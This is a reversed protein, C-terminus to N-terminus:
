SEICVRHCDITALPRREVVDISSRPDIEAGSPSHCAESVAMGLDDAVPMAHGVTALREGTMGGEAILESASMDGLQRIRIRRAIREPSAEVLGDISEEGVEFPIQEPHNRGGGIHGRDEDFGHLTIATVEHWRAIEKRSQAIEAIPMIDIWHHTIDLDTESPGAPEEAVFMGPDLRIKHDKALRQTATKRKTREAADAGHPLDATEPQNLSDLQHGIIAM